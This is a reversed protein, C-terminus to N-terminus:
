YIAWMLIFTVNIIMCINTNTIILISKVNSVTKPIQTVEMWCLPQFDSKARELM